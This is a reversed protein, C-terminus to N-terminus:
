CDFRAPTHHEVAELLRRDHAAGVPQRADDSPLPVAQTGATPATERVLGRSGASGPHRTSFSRSSVRKRRSGVYCKFRSPRAARSSRLCRRWASPQCSFAAVTATSTSSCGPRPPSIFWARSRFSIRSITGRSCRAPDTADRRPIPQTEVALVNSPELRNGMATLNRSRFPVTAGVVARRNDLQRLFDVIVLPQSCAKLM